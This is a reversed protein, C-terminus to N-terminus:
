SKLLLQMEKALIDYTTTSVPVLPLRLVNEIIGVSHLAAKAGGPNGDIFLAECIKQMRLHLQAAVKFDGELALHTLDAIEKPVVNAAVSIVGEGGLAIIPVILNDDGSIVSFGEPKDRLIKTIETINGSAEKTAIIKDTAHALRLTTEANMNVGTRGPVNYLIVPLPSVKVIAMYHQYIGEQTPKSYYPVVSLIADAKSLDMGLMSDIVGQTNNSGIGVVIPIKGNVRKCVFDVIQQKEVANLTATEATTGLVVLYDIQNELQSDVIKGLGEFDITLNAKFPTILAVGAGRFNKNM